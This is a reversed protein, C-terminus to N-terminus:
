VKGGAQRIAEVLQHAAAEPNPASGVAATVCIADAGAEVVPAVNEANIGGIAVLPAKTAARAEKLREPGQPGRGTGTGKTTTPYIAGFAIHDAGMAESEIIEEIEHNSRGLVQFPALVQRAQAVPLDTQGVHVGGSGVAAALDLHDNIILLANHAVCLEQLAIALPLQEGKDRLKDRLQLMKAGGRLAATAIELPTRGGTVTPDIIVYLGRVQDRLSRRWTAGLEDKLNSLAESLAEDMEASVKAGGNMDRMVALLSQSAATLTLAQPLGLAPEQNEALEVPGNSQLVIVLNRLRHILPGADTLDRGGGALADLSRVLNTYSAETLANYDTM